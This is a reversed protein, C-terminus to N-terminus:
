QRHRQKEATACPASPHQQGQRNQQGAICGQQQAQKGYADATPQQNNARHQQHHLVRCRSFGKRASRCLQDQRDQTRGQAQQNAQGDLSLQICTQDLRNLRLKVLPAVVAIGIGHRFSVELVQGGPLFAVGRSQFDRHLLRFLHIQAPLDVVGVGAGAPFCGIGFSGGLILVKKIPEMLCIEVTLALDCQRIAIRLRGCRQGHSYSIEGGTGGVAVIGIGDVAAFRQCRVADPVRIQGRCLAQIIQFAADRVPILDLPVEGCGLAPFVDLGIQGLLLGIGVIEPGHVQLHGLIAPGDELPM